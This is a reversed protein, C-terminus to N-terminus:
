KRMWFAVYFPHDREIKRVRGFGADRALERIQRGTFFGVGPGGKALAQPLEYVLDMFALIQNAPGVTEVIKEPGKMEVVLAVGGPALLRYTQRLAAAPDDMEHLAAQMYCLSAARRALEVSAPDPDFGVVRAAPFERAFVCLGRGGGCGLEVITGGRRLSRVLGPLAPLWVRPLLIEYASASLLSQAQAFGDYDAFPIGGGSRMCDAVRRAMMAPIAMSDAFAPFYVPAMEDTLFPSALPNLSFRGTRARCTLFEAAFAARCWTEVYRVDCASRSALEAATLGRPEGALRNFFGLHHGFFGTWTAAFGALHGMLRGIYKRREDGGEQGSKEAGQSRVPVRGPPRRGARAGGAARSNHRM